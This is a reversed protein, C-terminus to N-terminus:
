ERRAGDEGERQPLKGGAAAPAMRAAWRAGAPFYPTARVAEPARCRGPARALPSDVLVVGHEDAEVVLRNRRRRARELEGPTFGVPQVRPPAEALLLALREPARAPLDEAVVVLRHAAGYGVFYRCEMRAANGAIGDGM